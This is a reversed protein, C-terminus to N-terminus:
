RPVPTEVRNGAEDAVSLRLPAAPDRAVRLVHLAPRGPQQWRRPPGSPGRSVGMIACREDCTLAVSVAGDASDQRLRQVVVRPPATDPQSGPAPPEGTAATWDFTAEVGARAYPERPARRPFTLTFRYTREEGARLYGLRREDMAGLVGRYVPRGTRAEDIRLGLMTSLRAGGPGPADLVDSQTLRLAGTADGENAVTVAGVAQDGPEVGSARVVADAGVAETTRAVGTASAVRVSAREPGGADVKTVVLVFAAVALLAGAARALDGGM